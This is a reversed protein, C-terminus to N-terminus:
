PFKAENYLVYLSVTYGQFFKFIEKRFKQTIISTIINIFTKTQDPCFLISNTRNPIWSNSGGGRIIVFSIPTGFSTRCTKCNFDRSIILKLKSQLYLIWTTLQGALFANRDDFKEWVIKLISKKRKKKKATYWSHALLWTDSSNSCMKSCCWRGASESACPACVVIYACVSVWYDDGPHEYGHWFCKAKSGM